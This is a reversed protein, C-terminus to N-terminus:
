ISELHTGNRNIRLTPNREDGLDALGTYRSLKMKLWVDSGVPDGKEDRPREIMYMQDCARNLGRSGLTNGDDNAQVLLVCWIDHKKCIRHVWNAVNELHQAQSQQREQGTVLQYYDLIFGEVKNRYVHKEVAMQLREFEIGPENEFIAYDSVKRVEEVLRSRLQDNSANSRFAKAPVSLRQGYMRMAVEKSGMEACVFLHKHKGDILANSITTAMLTKGCKAPAIFSYVRGKQLGGDTGLDVVPLGTKAQYAPEPSSMDEYIDLGNQKITVSNDETSNTLIGTLKALTKATITSGDEEGSADILIENALERLLRRQRLDALTRVHNRFNFITAQGYHSCIEVFNEKLLEGSSGVVDKFKHFLQPKSISGQEDISTKICEFLKQHLPEEFMDTILTDIVKYYLQDNNIMAGLVAAELQENNLEM